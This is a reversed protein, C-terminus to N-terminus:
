AELTDELVFVWVPLRECVNVAEDQSYKVRTVHAPSSPVPCARLYLRHPPSVGPNDILSSLPQPPASPPRPWQDIPLDSSLFLKEHKTIVRCPPCPLVM